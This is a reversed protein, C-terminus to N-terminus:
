GSNGAWAIRSDVQRALRYAVPRFGRRPWFRSSLLNTSRWDTLIYRCGSEKAAFFGFQTLATGIGMGQFPPPTAAVSLELGDAHNLMDLVDDEPPFYAQMGAPKGDQFALYLIADRDEVLDGYGKRREQRNEPLHVAWVPANAQHKWIVESLQELTERDGPNSQRISVGEPLVPPVLNLQHLDVIGYVQQNGFSLSFFTQLLTADATPLVVFHNYYGETVLPATLRAYLDRLIERDVGQAIACGPQRIWVARGWIPELVVETLLYAVLEGKSLAAAGSVRPRTWLATVAATTADLDRPPLEPHLTRANEHQAALLDGARPLLSDDFPVLDFM